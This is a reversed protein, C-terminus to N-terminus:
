VDEPPTFRDRHSLVARDAWHACEESSVGVVSARAAYVRSWLDEEDFSLVPKLALVLRKSKDADTEPIEILNKTANM